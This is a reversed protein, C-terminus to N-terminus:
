KEVTWRGRVAEVTGYSKRQGKYLKRNADKVSEATVAVPYWKGNIREEKGVYIKREMDKKKNKTGPVRRTPQTSEEIRSCLYL